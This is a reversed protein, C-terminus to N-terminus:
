TIKVKRLIMDALYDIPNEPRIAGIDLFAANLTPYVTEALYPTLEKRPQKAEALEKAKDQVKKKMEEELAAKEEEMALKAANAVDVAKQRAAAVEEQLQVIARPNRRPGIFRAVQRVWSSGPVLLPVDMAEVAETFADQASAILHTPIPVTVPPPPAPKDEEDEEEEEPEPEDEPEEDEEKEGEETEAVSVPDPEPSYEVDTAGVVTGLMGEDLVNMLVVGKTLVTRDNTLIHRLALTLDTPSTQALPTDMASCTSLVNTSDLLLLQHQEAVWRGIADVSGEPGHLVVMMPSLHHRLQFEPVVTDRMHQVIGDACRNALETEEEDDADVVGRSVPLDLLLSDIDTRLLFRDEPVIETSPSVSFAEAIATALEQATPLKEDVMMTYMDDPQNDSLFVVAKAVDEVYVTPVVRDPKGFVPVPHGDLAESVLVALADEGGGYLVGCVLFFGTLAESNRLKRAVIREASLTDRHRPHPRRDAYMGADLPVRTTHVAGEDDEEEEEELETRAWTLVSSLAIFQRPEEDEGLEDKSLATAIFAAESPVQFDYVITSCSRLTNLFEDDESYRVLTKVFPIHLNQPSLLSGIVDVGRKRFMKAVNRGALTDVHSVFVRTM